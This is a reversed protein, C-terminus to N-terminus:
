VTCGEHLRRKAEFYALSAQEATDFVGLHLGKGDIQISSKFKGQHPYAGAFGSKATRKSMRTNQQNIRHPVDRLNTLRNDNRVGNIHDIDGTPWVGHTYLWALRHARCARWDVRILIYGQDSLSGAISGIPSRSSKRVRWRLLGTKPEYDLLERVREATPIPKTM